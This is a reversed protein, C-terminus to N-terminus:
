LNQGFFNSYYWIVVVLARQNMKTQHKKVERTLIKCFFDDFIRWSYESQFEILIKVSVFSFEVKNQARGKLSAYKQLLKESSVPMGKYSKNEQNKVLKSLVISLQALM